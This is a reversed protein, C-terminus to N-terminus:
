KCYGGFSNNYMFKTGDETIVMSGNGGSIDGTPSGPNWQGSSPIGAIPSFGGIRTQQQQRPRIIKFYVPLIVALAVVIVIIPILLFIILKQRRSLRFRSLRSPRKSSTPAILDSGSEKPTLLNALKENSYDASPTVLANQSDMGRLSPLVTPGDTLMPASEHANDNEVDQRNGFEGTTNLTDVQSPYAATLLSPRSAASEYASVSQSDPLSSMNADSDGRGLQSNPRSSSM